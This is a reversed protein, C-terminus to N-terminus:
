VFYPRLSQACMNEFGTLTMNVGINTPANYLWRRIDVLDSSKCISIFINEEIIRKRTCNYLKYELYEGRSQHDDDEEVEILLVFIRLFIDVITIIMVITLFWKAIKTKDMKINM